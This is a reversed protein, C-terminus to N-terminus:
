RGEWLALLWLWLWLWLWGVGWVLAAGAVCVLLAREVAEAAVGRPEVEDGHDVDRELEDDRAGEVPEGAEADFALSQTEKLQACLDRQRDDHELNQHHDEAHKCLNPIPPYQLLMAPLLPIRKVRPHRKHTRHPTHENPKKHTPHQKKHM